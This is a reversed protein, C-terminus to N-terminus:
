WIIKTRPDKMGNMMKIAQEMAFAFTVNPESFTVTHNQLPVAKEVMKEDTIKREGISWEPEHTAITWAIGHTDIVTGVTRSPWWTGVNVIVFDVKENLAQTIDPSLTGLDLTHSADYRCCGTGGGILKFLFRNDYNYSFVGKSFLYPLEYHAQDLMQRTTSGGVFHFTKNEWLSPQLKTMFSKTNADGQWYWSLNAPNENCWYDRRGILSDSNPSPNVSLPDVCCTWKGETGQLIKTHNKKATRNGMSNLPLSILFHTSKPVLHVIGALLMLAFGFVCFRRTGALDWAATM